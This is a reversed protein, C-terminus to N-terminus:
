RYTLLMLQDLCTPLQTVQSYCTLETVGGWMCFICLASNFGESGDFNIIFDSNLIHFSLTSTGTQQLNHRENLRVYMAVCVCPQAPLCKDMLSGTEITLLNTVDTLRADQQLHTSIATASADMRSTLNDVCQPLALRSHLNPQHLVPTPRYKCCIPHKHSFLCSPSRPHPHHHLAVEYSKRDDNSRPMRRGESSDLLM